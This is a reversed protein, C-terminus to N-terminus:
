IQLPEKPQRDAVNQIAQKVRDWNDSDGTVRIVQGPFKDEFGENYTYAPMLVLGRPRWKLWSECYPPWDDVLIKGYVLGKDESITIPTGPLHKRCWEAKETWAILTKYPGKTLIHPKFGYFRLANVLALGEQIPELDRWFGIQNKILNQIPKYEDKWVDTGSVGLGALAKELGKQMAGKYDAVTGDMDVLAIEPVTM